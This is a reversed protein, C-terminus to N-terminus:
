DLAQRRRLLYAAGVFPGFLLSGVAWWEENPDWDTASEVYEADFYVAFPLFLVGYFFALAGVTESVGFALLGLIPAVLGVLVGRYWTESVDGSTTGSLRVRRDVLYALGVSVNVIPVLAGAVWRAAAPSWGTADEVRGADYYIAAPIGGM